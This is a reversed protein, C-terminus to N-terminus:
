TQYRTKHLQTDIKLTREERGLGDHQIGGIDVHPVFDALHGHPQHANRQSSVGKLLSQVTVRVVPGAQVVEDGDEVGETVVGTRLGDGDARRETMLLTWLGSETMQTQTQTQTWAAQVEDGFSQLPVVAVSFAQHQLLLDEPLLGTQPPVGHLHEHFPSSM